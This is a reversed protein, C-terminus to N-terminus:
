ERCKYVSIHVTSSAWMWVEAWYSGRRAGNGASTAPGDRRQRSPCSRCAGRWMWWARCAATARRTAATARPCNRAAWTSVQLAQFYPDDTVSRVTLPQYIMTFGHFGHDMSLLHCHSPSSTKLKWSWQLAPFISRFVGDTMPFVM